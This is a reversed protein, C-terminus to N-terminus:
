SAKAMRSFHGSFFIRVETRQRTSSTSLQVCVEPSLLHKWTPLSPWYLPRPKTDAAPSAPFMGLFGVLARGPSVHAEGTGLDTASFASCNQGFIFLDIHLCTSRSGWLSEPELGPLRPPPPFCQLSFKSCSPLQQPTPSSVSGEDTLPQTGAGGRM